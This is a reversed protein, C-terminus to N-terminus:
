RKRGAGQGKRSKINLYEERPLTQRSDSSPFGPTGIVGEAQRLHLSRHVSMFYLWGRANLEGFYRHPATLELNCPEPLDVITARALMRCAEILGRLGDLTLDNREGHTMERSRSVDPMHGVALQALWGFLFKDSSASHTVVEAISFDKASPKFHVQTETLGALLAQVDDLALEYEFLLEDWSLNQARKNVLSPAAILEDLPLAM